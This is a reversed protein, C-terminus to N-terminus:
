PDSQNFRREFEGVVRLIEGFEPAEGFFMTERMAAYDQAWALREDPAPLLRLTGPKLTAYNM